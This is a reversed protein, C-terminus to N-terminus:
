KKKCSSAQNSEMRWSGAARWILVSETQLKSFNLEWSQVIEDDFYVYVMYDKNLALNDMVVTPGSYPREFTFKESNDIKLYLRDSHESLSKALNKGLCVTGKLEASSVINIFCVLLIFLTARLV